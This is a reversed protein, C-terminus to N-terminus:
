QLERMELKIRKIEKDDTTELLKAKLPRSAIEIAQSLVHQKLASDEKDTNGVLLLCNIFQNMSCTSHM